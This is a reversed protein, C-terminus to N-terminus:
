NKENTKGEAAAILKANAKNTKRDRWNPFSNVVEHGGKQSVQFTDIDYFIVWAGPTHKSM